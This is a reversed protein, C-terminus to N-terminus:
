KLTFTIKIGPIFSGASNLAYVPLTLVGPTIRMALNNDIAYSHIFKADIYADAVNIGWAGLVGLIGLDRDRRYADTADFLAQNNQSAYLQYENYYKDKPTPIVGHERYQSITLFENYYGQNYVIVVGLLTLGGYIIPVKWWRHNYLQGWGPILLSRKVAKSPSHNSDPHYVREKEKKIKPAFAAAAISDRKSSVLTDKKNRKITISSTDPNQAFAKPICVTLLLTILLYNYMRKLLSANRIVTLRCSYKM